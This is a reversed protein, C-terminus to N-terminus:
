MKEDTKTYYLGLFSGEEEVINANVEGVGYGDELRKIIDPLQKYIDQTVSTWKKLEEWNKTNIIDNVDTNIISEYKALLNETISKIKLRGSLNFTDFRSCAARLDDSWNNYSLKNKQEETLSDGFADKISKTIRDKMPFGNYPISYYWAFRLEAPSIKVFEPIEKLEPYTVTLPRDGKPPFLLFITKESTVFDKKYAM